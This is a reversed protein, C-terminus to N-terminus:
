LAVLRHANERQNLLVRRYVTGTATQLVSFDMTCKRLLHEIPSKESALAFIYNLLVYQVM